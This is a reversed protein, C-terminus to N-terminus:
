LNIPGSQRRTGDGDQRPPEYKHINAAHFMCLRFAGGLGHAGEEGAEGRVVLYKAEEVALRMREVAAAGGSARRQSNKLAEKREEPSMGERAARVRARAESRRWRPLCRRSRRM